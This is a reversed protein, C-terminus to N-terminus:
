KERKCRTALPEIGEEGGEGAAWSREPCLHELQTMCPVMTPTYRRHAPTTSPGSGLQLFVHPPTGLCSSKASAQALPSNQGQLGRSLQLGKPGQLGSLGVLFRATWPPPVPHELNALSRSWRRHRRTQNQVGGEREHQRPLFLFGPLNTDVRRGATQSRQLLFIQECRCKLGSVQISFTLSVTKLSPSGALQFLPALEWLSEEM